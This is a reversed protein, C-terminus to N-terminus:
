GGRTAADQGTRKRKSAGIKSVKYLFMTFVVAGAIFGAGTSVNGGEAVADVLLEYAAAGILVGPGFALLDGIIQKRLSVLMYALAGM